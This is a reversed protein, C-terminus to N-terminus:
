LVYAVWHFSHRQFRGLAGLAKLGRDQARGVRTRMQTRREGNVLGRRKYARQCVYKHEWEPHHPVFAGGKGAGCRLLIAEIEETIPMTVTRGHKGITAGVM